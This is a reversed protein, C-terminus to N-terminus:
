KYDRYQEELQKLRARLEPDNALKEKLKSPQKEGWEAVRRSEELDAEIEEQNCNYYELAALVQELNISPYHEVIEEPSMDAHHHWVVVDMVRIRHGAIRARGGCTGPTRVIKAEEPVNM